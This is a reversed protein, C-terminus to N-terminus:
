GTIPKLIYVDDIKDVLQFKDVVRKGDQTVGDIEVYRLGSGIFNRWSDEVSTVDILLHEFRIYSLELTFPENNIIFKQKM